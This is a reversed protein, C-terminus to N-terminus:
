KRLAEFVGLSEGSSATTTFGAEELRGLLRRLEARNPVHYEGVIVRNRRLVRDDSSLLVDFEAGECDLKLLDVEGLGHRDLLEELSIARVREAKSSGRGVKRSVSAGTQAIEVTGSRGALAASVIRVRRELRNAHINYRLVSTVRSAPEVAIITAHPAERAFWLTAAGVNAGVDVITRADPWRVRQVDYARLAFVEVFPFFEDLRCRARYGNRIKVTVQRGALSAVGRRPPCRSPLAMWSLPALLYWNTFERQCGQILSRLSLESLSPLDSAPSM